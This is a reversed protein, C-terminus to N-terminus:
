YARPNGFFSSSNSSNYSSPGYDDSDRDHRSRSSRQASPTWGEGPRIVNHLHINSPLGGTYVFVRNGFIVASQKVRRGAVICSYGVSTGDPYDPAQIWFGDTQPYYTMGPPGSAQSNNWSQGNWNVQNPTGSGKGMAKRVLKILFYIILGFIGLPLVFVFFLGILLGTIGGSSRPTGPATSSPPTGPTSPPPSFTPAQQAATAGIDWAVRFGNDANRSGPTNRYRAASRGRHPDKLYSGGRLVNRAPEGAPPVTHKPDSIDGSPYPAYIDSCWQYINGSMDYLGFLNPQKKGVSHTGKGESNSKFWGIQYANADNAGSYWPTQTNARAAYEFEAETPLRLRHGTKKSAWDMFAEADGVTIIVAPHDGEQAFGPNKWNYEPKQVLGTGDFGFGGSKGKEAETRHGTDSVFRQFQDRTIPFKGIYFDKTLTVNRQAEDAERGPESAPSGQVFSGKPILKLVLPQGGLDLSLEPTQAQANAGNTSLLLALSAPAAISVLLPRARMLRHLTFSSTTRMDFRLYM